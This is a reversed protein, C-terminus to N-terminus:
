YATNNGRNKFFINIKNISSFFLKLIGKQEPASSITFPHWEHKAIIPINVFVYDGAKYKFNKPRTIVLNTVNSSLLNVEKIFTEGFKKSNVRCLTFIREILCILFPVLFWKWFHTTHLVLIIYYLVHIWHTFYFIQFYGKKRICPLAFIVIIVLIFLLAWGTPMSIAWAWGVGSKNTFLLEAFTFVPESSNLDHPYSYNLNIKMNIDNHDSRNIQSITFTSVIKSGISNM